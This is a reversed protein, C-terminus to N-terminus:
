ETLILCNRTANTSNVHLVAFMASASSISILTNADCLATPIVPYLCPPARCFASCFVNFWVLSLLSSINCWCLLWILCSPRYSQWLNFRYRATITHLSLLPSFNDKLSVRLLSIHIVVIIIYYYYYNNQRSVLYCPVFSSCRCSWVQLITALIAYNFLIKCESQNVFRPIWRPIALQFRPETINNRM